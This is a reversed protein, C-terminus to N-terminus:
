SLIDLIDPIDLIDILSLFISTIVLWLYVCVNLRAIGVPM